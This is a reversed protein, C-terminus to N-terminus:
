SSVKTSSSQHQPQHMDLQPDSLSDSLRNRSTSIDSTLTEDLINLMDNRDVFIQRFYFLNTLGLTLLVFPSPLSGFRSLGAVAWTILFFLGALLVTLYIADFKVDGTVHTKGTAEDHHIQGRTHLETYLGGLKTKIHFTAHHEDLRDITVMRRRPFFIGALKGPQYALDNLHAQVDDPSLDSTHQFSKIFLVEDTIKQLRNPPTSKPKNSAM